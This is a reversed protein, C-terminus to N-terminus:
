FVKIILIVVNWFVQFRIEQAEKSEWGLLQYEQNLDAYKRRNNYYEAIM